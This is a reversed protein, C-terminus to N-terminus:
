NEWIRTPYNLILFTPMISSGTPILHNPFQLWERRYIGDCIIQVPSKGYKEGLSKLLDINMIKGKLIPSWAEYQIKHERCFDLLSQQILYLHFEVQNLMPPIECFTFLDLLHHQMFNSVGIAKVRGERYIKELAKWTEKYKGPVPWHILYLDLYEFGLNEMSHNFANLTQNYGQDSNWVKTTVFVNERAVESERIAQGVSKENGYMAATDILRYGAKLAYKVAKIAENGEKSGFVGLGFYPMSIGNSLSVTGQLNTIDM